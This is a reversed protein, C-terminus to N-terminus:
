YISKLCTGGMKNILKVISVRYDILTEKNHLCVQKMLNVKREWFNEIIFQPNIVTARGHLLTALAMATFGGGSSGFFLTNNIPIELANLMLELYDAINKLYWNDNTGYCWCLGTEITKYLTPDAYFICTANIDSSWSHRDFCPLPKTERNIDGTGFIVASNLNSKYNILFEYKVEKDEIEYIASNLTIFNKNIIDERKIKVVPYVM